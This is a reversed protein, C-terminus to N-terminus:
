RAKMAEARAPPQLSPIDSGVVTFVERRGSDVLPTFRAYWARWEDDSPMERMERDFEALSEYTSELVLTYYPGTLDTLLRADKMANSRRLFGLGEKWLAVAERAKGFKLQFIDRVVIM